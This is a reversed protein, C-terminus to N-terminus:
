SQAALARVRRASASWAGSTSAAGGAMGGRRARLAQLTHLLPWGQPFLQMLLEYVQRFPAPQEQAAASTRAEAVQMVAYGQLEIWVCDSGAERESMRDAEVRGDDSNAREPVDGIAPCQMERPIPAAPVRVM